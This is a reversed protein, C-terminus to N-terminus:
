RERAQSRRSARFRQRWSGRSAHLGQLRGDSRKIMKLRTIQGEAQGNSWPTTLVACVAARDQELGAAFTEMARVGCAQAEALWVDFEGCPDPQRDVHGVGCRRVLATFRRALNAFRRVRLCLHVARGLSPLDAPHREYRSHVASSHTGCSPCRWGDRRAHAQIVLRDPGRTIRDIECGPLPFTPIM